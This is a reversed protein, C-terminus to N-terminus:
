KGMDINSINTFYFEVINDINDINSINTFYFEVILRYIYPLYTQFSYFLSRVDALTRITPDSLVNSIDQLYPKLNQIKSGRIIASLVM